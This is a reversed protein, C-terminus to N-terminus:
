TPARGALFRHLPPAATVLECAAWCLPEPLAHIKEIIEKDDITSAPDYYEPSLWGKFQIDKSKLTNMLRTVTFITDQSLQIFQEFTKKDGKKVAEMFEKNTWAPHNEPLESVVAKAVEIAQAFHNSITLDLGNTLARVIEAAMLPGYYGAYGFASLTATQGPQLKDLQDLFDIMPKLGTM